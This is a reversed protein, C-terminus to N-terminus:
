SQKRVWLMGRGDLVVESLVAFSWVTRWGVISTFVKFVYYCVEDKTLKSIRDMTYEEFEAEFERDMEKDTESDGSSSAGESTAM